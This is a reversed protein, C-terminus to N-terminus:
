GETINIISCDHMGYERLLKNGHLLAVPNEMKLYCKRIDEIDIGLDYASNLGILLENATIDLPVEVDKEINKKYFKVLIVATKTM